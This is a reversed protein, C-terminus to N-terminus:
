ASPNPPIPRRLHFVAGLFHAVVEFGKVCIERIKVSQKKPKDANM